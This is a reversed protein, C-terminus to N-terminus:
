VYIFLGSNTTRDYCPPSAVLICRVKCLCGSGIALNASSVKTRIPLGRCVDLTIVAVTVLELEYNGGCPCRRARGAVTFACLPTSLVEGIRAPITCGGGGLARTRAMLATRQLRNLALLQTAAFAAIGVVIVHVASVAALLAGLALLAHISLACGDTRRPLLQTAAFAGVCIVVVHIASVATLLARRALLAHISLTCGDARSALLQTAAFAAIGVVVVHVTSVAALLARLVVVALTSRTHMLLDTRRALLHTAAFAAIGVVVIHVASVATPLAVM